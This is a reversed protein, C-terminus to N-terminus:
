SSGTKSTVKNNFSGAGITAQDTRELLLVRKGSGLLPQTFLMKFLGVSHQALLRYQTPLLPLQDLKQASDAQCSRRCGVVGFRSCVLAITPKLATSEFLAIHKQKHCM